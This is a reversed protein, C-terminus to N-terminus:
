GRPPPEGAWDLAAWRRSRGRDRGPTLWGRGHDLSVEATGAPLEHDPFTKPQLRPPGDRIMLTARPAACGGPAVRATVGRLWRGRGGGRGAAAAADGLRRRAVAVVLLAGTRQARTVHAGIDREGAGGLAGPGPLCPGVAKVAAAFDGDALKLAGRALAAGGRTGVAGALLARARRHNRARLAAEAEAVTVAPALGPCAALWTERLRGLAATAAAPDGDALLLKARLFQGIAPVPPEGPVHGARSQDLEGLLREATLLDDRALSIQACALSALCSAEGAPTADAARAAGAAQQAASLEGCCALALARWAAARARLATLGGAGLEADALALADRAEGPQWRALSSVGLAFWLLGAARHEAPTGARARAAEALSRGRRALEDADPQRGDPQCSVRQGGDPQCSVRQGGDPQGSV